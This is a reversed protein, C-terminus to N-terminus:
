PKVGFIQPLLILVGTTESRYEGYEVRRIVEDGRRVCVTMRRHKRDLVWVEAAGNDLYTTVKDDTNERPSLIEIAIMPAGIFYKSTRRQDPWQVSVDPELWSEGM